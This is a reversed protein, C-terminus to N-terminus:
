AISALQTEGKAAVPGKKVNRIGNNSCNGSAQLHDKLPRDKTLGKGRQRSMDAIKLDPHKYRGRGETGLMVKMQIAEKPCLNLCACCNACNHNWVPRGNAVTINSAPCVKSCIGCSNCRDDVNFCTDMKRANKYSNSAILRQLTSSLPSFGPKVRDGRNIAKAAREVEKKSQSLIRAKAEGEPPRMMPAFNGPMKIAFAADLGRGFRQGFVRNMQHLASTGMGGMTVVGFTYSAKSLDLRNIFDLVMVPISWRYVPCVIGVRDANPSIDGPTGITEAISVLRCDKIRDCLERAVALSNGTGTFYYITTTM